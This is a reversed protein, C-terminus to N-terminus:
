LFRVIKLRWLFTSIFQNDRYCFFSNFSRPQHCAEANLTCFLTINAVTLSASIVQSGYVTVVIIHGLFDTHFSFSTSYTIVLKATGLLTQVLCQFSAVRYNEVTELFTALGLSVNPYNSCFWETM